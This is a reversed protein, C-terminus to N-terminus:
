SLDLSETDTAMYLPLYKQFRAGAILLGCFRNAVSLSNHYELLNNYKILIIISNALHTPSQWDAM